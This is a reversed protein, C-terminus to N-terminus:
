RCLAVPEEVRTACIRQIVKPGETKRTEIGAEYSLVQLRGSAAGLLEGPSLLHDPNRPRDYRENGRAYTEYLFLGGPAVSEVLRSMLPRYLYNVVVVADFDRGALPWPLGVELDAEIVEAVGALDAVSSVDQDLLTVRAGRELFFRGHRGGGCALDLVRAGSPVLSAFRSIWPSPDSNQCRPNFPPM